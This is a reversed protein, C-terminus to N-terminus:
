PLQALHAVQLQAAESSNGTSDSTAKKILFKTVDEDTGAEGLFHQTKVGSHKVKPKTPRATRLM